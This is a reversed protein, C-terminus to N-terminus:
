LEAVLCSGVPISNFLLQGHDGRRQSPRWSNVEPHMAHGNAGGSAIDHTRYPGAHFVNLVFPSQEPPLRQGVRLVDPVRSSPRPHGVCAVDGLRNFPAVHDFLKLGALHHADVILPFDCLGLGSPWRESHSGGFLRLVPLEEPRGPSRTRARHHPSM